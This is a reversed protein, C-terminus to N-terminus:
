KAGDAEKTAKVIRAQLRRVNGHIQVWNIQHWKWTRLLACATTTKDTKTIAKMQKGGKLPEKLNKEHHYSWNSTQGNGTPHHQKREDGIWGMVPYSESKELMRYGCGM